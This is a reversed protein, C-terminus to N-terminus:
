QGCIFYEGWKCFSRWNMVPIYSPGVVISLCFYFLVCVPVCLLIYAAEWLVASRFSHLVTHSSELWKKSLANRGSIQWTQIPVLSNLVFYVSSCIYVSHLMGSRYQNHFAWIWDHDCTLISHFCHFTQFISDTPSMSLLLLLLYYSCHRFWIPM